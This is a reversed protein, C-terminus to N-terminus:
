MECKLSERGTSSCKARESSSSFVSSDWALFGFFFTAPWESGFCDAAFFGFPCVRLSLQNGCGEMAAAIRCSASDDSHLRAKDSQDEPSACCSVASLCRETRENAQLQVGRENGIIEAVFVGCGASAGTKKGAIDQPPAFRNLRSAAVGWAEGSVVTRHLAAHSSMRNPVTNRVGSWGASFGHSSERWRRAAGTCVQFM